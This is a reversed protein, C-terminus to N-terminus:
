TGEVEGVASGGLGKYQDSHDPATCRWVQYIGNGNWDAGGRAKLETVWSGCCPGYDGLSGQVTDFNAPADPHFQHILETGVYMMTHGPVILVDGPLLDTIELTDLGGLHTWKPSSQLYRIQNRTSTYEYTVDTGSWRIALAVSRDCSKYISDNPIIGDHVTVYLDTGNNGAGATTDRHAYSSAASAASSNDYLGLVGSDPCKANANAVAGDNAITGMSQALSMVSSVYATDVQWSESQMKDYWQIAKARRGEGNHSTNGEYWKAFYFANDSADMEPQEKWKAFFGPRYQKDTLMYALQFEMSSWEHNTQTAYQLLNYAGEGTWQILGIGCYHKGDPGTYGAESISVGRDYYRQFITGVTWDDLDALAAQKRPGIQNPEDYIGEVCTADIIDTEHQMNGLIGAIMADSLGYEKFVSYVKKANSEMTASGDVPGIAPKKVEPCEDTLLAVGEDSLKGAESLVVADGLDNTEETAGSGLIAMLLVGGIILAAKGKVSGSWIAKIKAKIHGTAPKLKKKAGRLARTALHGAKKTSQEAEQGTKQMEDAM